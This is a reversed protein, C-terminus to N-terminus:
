EAPVLAPQRVPAFVARTVVGSAAWIGVTVAAAVVGDLAYHWGLHVSGVWILVAYAWMAWGLRRSLRMGGLAFLVCMANHMSPMASIGGGLALRDSGFHQLLASQNVLAALGADGSAKLVADIAALREMLPEFRPSAHFEAFYVPGASPMAWALACGIVIWMLAYSLVYQTRLESSGIFACVTIGLTMPVFWGHYFGDVIQTATASGLVAHTLTWPEIGLFVLRDLDAFLPDLGFGAAPLVLQKFSNFSALTVMCVASPTLVSLMRDRRWRLALWDRIVAFPSPVAGDARALQGCRIFLAAAGVVLALAALSEAYVRLLRAFDGLPVIGTALVATMFLLSVGLALAAAALERADATM